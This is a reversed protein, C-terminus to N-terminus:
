APAGIMAPQPMQPRARGQRSSNCRDCALAFNDYTNAGGESLPMIHEITALNPARAVGPPPWDFEMPEHCWCCLDGDRRRLRQRVKGRNLAPRKM